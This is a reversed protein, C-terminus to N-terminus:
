PSSWELFMSSTPTSAKCNPSWDYRASHCAMVPVVSRADAYMDFELFATHDVEIQPLIGAELFNSHLLKWAIALTQKEEPTCSEDM